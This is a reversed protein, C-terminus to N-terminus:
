TIYILETHQKLICPYTKITIHLSTLSALPLLRCVPSRQVTHPLTIPKAPLSPLFVPSQHRSHSEKLLSICVCGKETNNDPHWRCQQQWTVGTTGSATRGWGQSDGPLLVPTPQWKRGWHMFTFLSLSTAWDHRVRQSWPSCGVLDEDMPNELCSCQLPHWRRRWYWKYFSIFFLTTNNPGIGTSWPDASKKFLTLHDHNSTQLSHQRQPTDASSLWEVTGPRGRLLRGGLTDFRATARLGARHTDPM